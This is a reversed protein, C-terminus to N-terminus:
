TPGSRPSTSASIDTSPALVSSDPSTRLNGRKASKRRYVIVERDQAVASPIKVETHLSSVCDKHENVRRKFGKDRVLYHLGAAVRRAVIFNM